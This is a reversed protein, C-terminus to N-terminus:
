LKTVRGGTGHHLPLLEENIAIGDWLLSSQLSPPIETM